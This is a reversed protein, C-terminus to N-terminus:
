FAPRVTRPPRDCDTHHLVTVRRGNREICVEVLDVRPRAHEVRALEKATRELRRLQDRHAHMGPRWRLCPRDGRFPVRGTKVEVCVLVAGCRVVLDVEATRTSLRRALIRWGIRALHAAAIQEGVLGLEAHSLRLGLAARPAFRILARRAARRLAKLM